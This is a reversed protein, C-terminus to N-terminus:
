RRKESSGFTRWLDPEAQGSMRWAVGVAPSHGDGVDLSLTKSRVSLDGISRPSDSSTKAFSLAPPLRKMLEFVRHPQYRAVVIRRLHKM